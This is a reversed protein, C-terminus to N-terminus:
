LGLLRTDWCCIELATAVGISKLSRYHGLDL